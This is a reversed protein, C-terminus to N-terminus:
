LRAVYSPVILRETVGQLCHLQAVSFSRAAQKGPSLTTPTWRKPYAAETYPLERDTQNPCNLGCCSQGCHCPVGAAQATHGIDSISCCRRHGM